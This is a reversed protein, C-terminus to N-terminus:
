RKSFELISQIKKNNYISSPYSENLKEAYSISNEINIDKYLIALKYLTEEIYDGTPFKSVYEEYYKIANNNLKENVVANFFIIHPFLYSEKGYTYALLFEESAQELKAQNYFEMGKNYFAEAGRSELVEKGNFYSTKSESDLNKADVEKIINHIDKYEEALIAKKISDKDISSEKKNNEIEEVENMIIDNNVESDIIPDSKSIMVNYISIGGILIIIIAIISIVLKMNINRKVGEIKSNTYGELEKVLSKVKENEKDIDLAKTIYFISTSYDGKRIYCISLAINVRLSNFDSEKCILFNNIADDIRLKKLLEEGELYLSLRRNDAKSDEIYNKAIKDDNYDSNIKWTAVAGKLNGKIYLLLGKLNLAASNKLNESIAEECKEIAKDIYGEEYYKVAKLYANNRNVDKM